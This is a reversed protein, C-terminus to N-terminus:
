LLEIEPLLSQWPTGQQAEAHKLKPITSNLEPIVETIKGIVTYTNKRKHKDCGIWCAPM